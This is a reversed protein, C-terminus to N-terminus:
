QSPSKQPENRHHHYRHCHHHHHESRFRPFQSLFMGESFLVLKSNAVIPINLDLNKVISLKSKAKYIQGILTSGVNGIGFIIIHIRKM